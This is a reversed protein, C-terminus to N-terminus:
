EARDLGNVGDAKLEGQIFGGVQAAPVEGQVGRRHGVASKGQRDHELEEILRRKGVLALHIEDVVCDVAGGAGHAGAGLEGIRISPERGTHKRTNPHRSCRGLILQEHGVGGDPDLLHALEHQHDVGLVDGLRFVDREPRDDIAQADDRLTQRGVVVDNDVAEHSRPRACLNRWLLRVGSRCRGRARLDVGISRFGIRREWKKMSRGIKAATTEITKTMTPATDTPRSGTTWYGSIAGGTTLTLPWYGPALASTTAAVTTAGSSCCILPMSFM